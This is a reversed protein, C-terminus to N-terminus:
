GIEVMSGAGMLLIAADGEDEGLHGLGEAELFARARGKMWGNKPEEPKRKSIDVGAAKRATIEAVPLAEIGREALFCMVAGRVSANARVTQMNKSAYFESFIVFGCEQEKIVKYIARAMLYLAEGESVSEEGKVLATGKPKSGVEGWAIGTKKKSLDLTAVWRAKSM